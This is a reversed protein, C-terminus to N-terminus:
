TNYIQSYLKNEGVFVNLRTRKIVTQPSLAAKESMNLFLELQFLGQKWQFFGDNEPLYYM